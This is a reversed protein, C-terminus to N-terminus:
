SSGVKSLDGVDGANGGEFFRAIQAADVAELRAPDWRPGRDKDIVMARIGEYFDPTHLFQLSLALEREMAEAFGLGAGERLARLTVKLATPSKQELATIQAAGWPCSERRLAEIVDEVRDHDFIHPTHSLAEQITSPGAETEHVHLLADLVSGDENLQAEEVDSILAAIRESPVFHTALGAAVADAGSLRAGTLGMWYGLGADLRPLVYTAGVDPYFGIATEPMALVTRETAVRFDGHISVGVGGGMTVGDMIAVYPKPYARILANLAYEERWFAAARGDGARGSDHLMRIDAGASFARDGAGDVMIAMVGPEDRWAELAQAVARVMDIDLANLASPRNLTIRGVAGVRRAIISTDEGM